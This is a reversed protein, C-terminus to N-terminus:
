GAGDVLLMRAIEATHIDGKWLRVGLDGMAAHALHTVILQTVIARIPFGAPLRDRGITVVYQELQDILVVFKEGITDHGATGPHLMARFIVAMLAEHERQFALLEMVTAEVKEEYSDGKGMGRGIAAAIEGFAHDVVERYLNDKSGFHYLLSSRRIGAHAAIDELRADAFGREAFVQEAARLVRVSTTEDFADKRPRGMGGM